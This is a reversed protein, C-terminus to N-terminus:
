AGPSISDAKVTAEYGLQKVIAAIGELQESPGDYDVEILNKTVDVRVDSIGKMKRGHHEIAFVCSPCNAGKLDLHGTKIM